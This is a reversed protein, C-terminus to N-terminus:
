MSRRMERLLVRQSKRRAAHHTHDEVATRGRDGGRDPLEPDLAETDPVSVDPTSPMLRARRAGTPFGHRAPHSLGERSGPSSSRTTTTPSRTRSCLTNELLRSSSVIMPPSSSSGTMLPRVFEIEGRENRSRGFVGRALSVRRGQRRHGRGSAELAEPTRRRQLSDRTTHATRYFDMITGTSTTSSTLGQVIFWWKIGYGATYSIAKEIKDMSSQPFEDMLMLRHTYDLDRTLEDTMQVFLLRTLPALRKLDGRPLVLYLSM